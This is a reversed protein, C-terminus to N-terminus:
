AFTLKESLRPLVDAVAQELANLAHHLHPLYNQAEAINGKRLLQEVVILTDRLQLASINAAVGKINHAMSAASPIEQRGLRDGLVALQRSLDELADLMIERLINGDGMLRQLMEDYDWVPVEALIAEIDGASAEEAVPIAQRVSALQPLVRAMVEALQFPELPKSLYDNMGAQICRTRDHAMARATMAVIPIQPNLCGNKADRIMRTASLGDLEPMQVDMLVLDYPVLQLAGVAEHGNAVADARLGFKQLIGMAVQQNIVNDEAILIRIQSLAFVERLDKLDMSQDRMQRRRRGMQKLLVVTFWFESGVGPESTVGVSGGMREALEKSIALGLGTGGYNRTTTADVQSFKQFLLPIKDKAIGPGTDRVAFRLEVAEQSQQLIAVQLVVEGSDTFKIANGMFNTLIQRLRSPDGRLFVPLEDEIEVRLGLGKTEASIEQTPLFDDLLQKLDFDLIELDLKGAEIKSFDLIDNILRLLAEASSRVTEAYRRQDEDLETDLLLGTMGVVGNMPTRIEHSMNALFETKAVNAIEAAEAMEEARKIALQLEENARLLNREHRKRVSIDTDTGRYALLNGQEDLLPMANSQVWIISGDKRQIRNELDVVLQHGGMIKETVAIFEDRGEQPHLDHFYFEGILEEVAFGYVKQASESVYTFLGKNDVEWFVSRSQCSLEEFRQNTLKLKLQAQIRETIDIVVGEWIKRGDARERPVSELSVWREADGLNIRGEWFFRSGEEFCRRNIELFAAYDEPYVRRFAVDPNALVAERTVGAIQLFRESVFIFKPGEGPIVEMVYTGVPINETLEFATKELKERRARENSNTDEVLPEDPAAERGKKGAFGFKKPPKFLKM